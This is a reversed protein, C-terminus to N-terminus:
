VLVHNVVTMGHKEDLDRLVGEVGECDKMFSDVDEQFFVLNNICLKWTCNMVLNVVFTAEPIGAFSKKGLAKLSEELEKEGAMKVRKKEGTSYIKDHFHLM